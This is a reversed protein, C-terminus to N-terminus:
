GQEWAKGAPNNALTFVSPSPRFSKTVHMVNPLCLTVCLPLYGISDQSCVSQGGARPCVNCSPNLSGENALVGLTDIRQRRHDCM